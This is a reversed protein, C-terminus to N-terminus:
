SASIRLRTMRKMWTMAVRARSEPGPPM